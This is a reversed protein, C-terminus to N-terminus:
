GSTGLVKFLKKKNLMKRLKKRILRNLEVACFVLAIRKRNSLSLEYYEITSCIHEYTLLDPSKNM